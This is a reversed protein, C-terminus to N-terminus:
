NEDYEFKYESLIRIWHFYGEYDETVEIKSLDLGDPFLTTPFYKEFFDIGEKCARHQKLFKTTIIM